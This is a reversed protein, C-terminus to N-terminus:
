HNAEVPRLQGSASSTTCLLIAPAYKGASASDGDDGKRWDNRYKGPKDAMVAMVEWGEATVIFYRKLRPDAQEAMERLAIARLRYGVAKIIAM